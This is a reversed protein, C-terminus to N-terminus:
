KASTLLKETRCYFFYKQSFFPFIKTGNSLAYLQNLFMDCSIDSFWNNLLYLAFYTLNHRWRHYFSSFSLPWFKFIKQKNSLFNFKSCFIISRFLKIKVIDFVIEFFVATFYVHNSTLCATMCLTILHCLFLFSHLLIM